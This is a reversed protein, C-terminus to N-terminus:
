IEKPLLKYAKFSKEMRYIKLHKFEAKHKLAKAVIESIKTARIGLYLEKISSPPIEVYYNGDPDQEDLSALLRVEQEYYWNREKRGLVERFKREYEERARKSIIPISATYPLLVMEKKYEVNVLNKSDDVFENEDLGVVIGKHTDAYHSWMQIIDPHKSLCTIGFKKNFFEEVVRLANEQGEILFKSVVTAMATASNKKHPIGQKTLENAWKKMYRPEKELESKIREFANTDDMGFALDFPDNFDNVKSAKLRLNVLIDFGNTDCYKYLM